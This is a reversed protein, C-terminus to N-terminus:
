RNTATPMPLKSCHENM